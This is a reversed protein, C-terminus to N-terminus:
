RASVLWRWLRLGPECLVTWCRKSVEVMTLLKDTKYSNGTEQAHLEMGIMMALAALLYVMKM